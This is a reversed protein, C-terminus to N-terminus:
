IGEGLLYHTSRAKGQKVILNKQVMESLLERTRREKLGLLEEAVKSTISVHEMIYELVRREQTTTDPPIRRNEPPKVMTDAPITITEPTVTVSLPKVPLVTLFYSRADDTEFVPEDSGNNKMARRIKPIGTGKGETLHLEKLFDGIRRNLYKRSIIREKKFDDPSIPPMAGGHSLIEIKDLRVNVEIPEREEYNKHYVANALAEEVAQFPYNYFRIAEAQGEVKQVHEVIVQAKIYSLAKKLQQHIAGKFVKETFSDGIDDHYINVEIRTYPFFKEVDESFFLLGVNVPRLDENAGRAIQMVRLLDEFEMSLASHFLDSKVDQLFMRIEALSLDGISAHHNIRDDFPTKAALRMLQQEEQENAKATSSMRRVYYLKEAGKSLNRAAKYPRTEGGPVWVVLIHKGEIEYPAVVPTYAPVIKHCLQHLDQQMKDLDDIDIGKPPLVARGNEEAIGIILYGGGWNNMDNAFACITHLIIEPNWGEKFEIREWEVTSGHILEHINIPLAM